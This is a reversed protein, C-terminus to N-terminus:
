PSESPSCEWRSPQSGEGELAPAPRQRHATYDEIRGAALCRPRSRRKRHTWEPGSQGLASHLGVTTVVLLCWVWLVRPSSMRSSSRKSVM